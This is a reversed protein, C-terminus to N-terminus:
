FRSEPATQAAHADIVSRAIVDFSAAISSETRVVPTQQRVSTRVRGSFPVWGALPPRQGTFRETITGFRDHVSLADSRSDAFNVVTQLRAEPATTWVHKVLRYADAIATPEEVLVVLGADSRDLAWQVADGSGAPADLIVIDHAEAMSEVALDLVEFIREHRRPMERMERAGEVLSIGSATRHFAEGFTGNGRSVDALSLAPQENLLIACAGQTLDADLLAVRHGGLALHEALNVSVISKGVGGKGSVVALITSSRNM